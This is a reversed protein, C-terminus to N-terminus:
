STSVVESGTESSTGTMPDCSRSMSKLWGVGPEGSSAKQADQNAFLRLGGRQRPPSKAAKMFMRNPRIKKVHIALIVM